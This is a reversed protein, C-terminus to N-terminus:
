GSDLSAAGEYGGAVGGGIVGVRLRGLGVWNQVFVAAFVGVGGGGLGGGGAHAWAVDGGGGDEFVVAAGLVLGRVEGPVPVGGGGTGCGAVGGVHRAHEVRVGVRALAPLALLDDLADGLAAPQRLGLKQHLRLALV